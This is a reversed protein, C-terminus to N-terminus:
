VNYFGVTVSKLPTLLSTLILNATSLKYFIRTTRSDKFTSTKCLRVDHVFLGRPYTSKALCNLIDPYIYYIM